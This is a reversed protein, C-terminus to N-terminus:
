WWTTKWPTVPRSQQAGPVGVAFQGGFFVPCQLAKPEFSENLYSCFYLNLHYAVTVAAKKLFHRTRQACSRADSVCFLVFSSSSGTKNNWDLQSQPTIKEPKATLLFSVTSHKVCQECKLHVPVRQVNYVHSRRTKTASQVCTPSSLSM